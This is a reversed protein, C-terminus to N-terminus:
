RIGSDMLVTLNTWKGEKVQFPIPAASPPGGPNSPVPMLWYEGPELPIRFKGKEDSSSRAIVRGARNEIELKVAYPQDPCAQGEQIVPCMPGIM